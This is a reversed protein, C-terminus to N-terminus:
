GFARRLRRWIRTMSKSQRIGGPDATGPAIRALFAQRSETARRNAFAREVPGNTALGAVLQQRVAEVGARGRETSKRALRRAAQSLAFEYARDLREDDLEDLRLVNPWGITACQQSVKGGGPVSDVALAPVGNKLALVVGHLRTTVVIDMRGILAEIEGRSRLGTGNADLRTEIPVRAAEHRVLLRGIALNATGVDVDPHAERLCVGVVPPLAARSAFVLDPNASALSDREIVFDFPRWQDPDYDLSLNLGILRCGAFRGLFDAELPGRGFPGCVFFAHTFEAPDISDLAAGETFPPAVATVHAIGLEDLWERVIDRALLDGATAHGYAYSFWGAIVAKFAGAESHAGFDDM